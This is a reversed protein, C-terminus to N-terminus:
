CGRSSDLGLLALELLFQGDPAVMNAIPYPRSANFSRHRDEPNDM